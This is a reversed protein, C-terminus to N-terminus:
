AHTEFDQYPWLSTLFPMILTVVLCAILSTALTVTLLYRSTQIFEASEAELLSLTKIVTNKIGIDGFIATFQVVLMVLFFAGLEAQSLLSAAVMITVLSAAMGLLNGGGSLVIGYLYQTKGKDM